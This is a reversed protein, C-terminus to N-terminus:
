CGRSRETSQLGHADPQDQSGSRQLILEKKAPFATTIPRKDPGSPLPLKIMTEALASASALALTAVGATKLFRRRSLSFRFPISREVV